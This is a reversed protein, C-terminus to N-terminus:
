AAGLKDLLATKIPPRSSFVLLFTAERVLRQAHQGTTIASSGDRVTLAAAARLALESATARAQAMAPSGGTLADDLRARCAALEDDLPGPGLLRCCRGALGLVLSSNLRLPEPQMNAAPNFPGQGLIRGAPVDVADFDLRVTVSADVAILRQRSVTLGDQPAADLVLRVITDSPGRAAVLLKDIMGWGSVWPATGHLRWGDAAPEARLLPPGPILGSLAIGSRLKGACAPGLWAATLDAPAGGSALTMMLGFHQIWVFATALCGSAVEEIVAGLTRLDLGLGGAQAAAAAGYLGAGALADLHDTPLTDSQDVRMADPFLTEDALQRAAAVIDV